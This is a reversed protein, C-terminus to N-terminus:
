DHSSIKIKRLSLTKAGSYSDSTKSSNLVALKSRGISESDNKRYNSEGNTASSSEFQSSKLNSNTAQMKMLTLGQLHPNIAFVVLYLISKLNMIVLFIQYVIVVVQQRTYLFIFTIYPLDVFILTTPILWLYFIM